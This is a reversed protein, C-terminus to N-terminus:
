NNGSVAFDYRVMSNDLVWERDENRLWRDAVLEDIASEVQKQYDDRSHYRSGIAERPDSSTPSLPLLDSLGAFTAAQDGAGTDKHRPNWGTHTAIPQRIDPLRIGAVENFAADIDSVLCPYTEFEQAPYSGVGIQEDPGLALRRVRSLKDPDLPTLHNLTQFNHLVQQRSCATGDNLRPYCSRNPERTDNVWDNLQCLLARMLPRFDVINMGHATQGGTPLETIQNGNLLLGGIHHTGSILFCRTNAPLDLDRSGDPAIHLLSADGRWYEWSTNVHFVRPPLQTNILSEVRDSFPDKLSTAAFPYRQGFSPAGASTPQAFRHNFDGRQSGAIHIFFGDYIKEFKNDSNLGEYLFQNLLRGTQSVGFAIARSHPRGLLNDESKLWSAIERVALLGAGVVRAGSSEYVLEYIKGRKFGEDTTIHIDSSEEIHAGKEEKIHAFRWNQRPIEVANDDEWDKVYLHHDGQLSVRNSPKTQGLQIIRM